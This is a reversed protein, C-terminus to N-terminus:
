IEVKDQMFNLQVWFGGWNVTKQKKKQLNSQKKDCGM